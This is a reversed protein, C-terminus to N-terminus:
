RTLSCSPDGAVWQMNILHILYASNRNPGTTTIESGGDKAKIITTYSKPESGKSESNFLGVPFVEVRGEMTTADLDSQVDHNISTWGGQGFCARARQAVSRYAGKYEAKSLSTFSRESEPGPPPKPIASCGVLAISISLALTRLHLMIFEYPIPVVFAHQLGTLNRVAAVHSEVPYCIGQNWLEYNLAIIEHLAKGRYEPTKTRYFNTVGM